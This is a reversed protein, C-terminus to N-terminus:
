DKASGSTRPAGSPARETLRQCQWIDAPRWIPSKRDIKSVKVGGSTLPASFPARETLKQCEWIDTPRWIPSKRDIKSVAMWKGLNEKDQGTQDM